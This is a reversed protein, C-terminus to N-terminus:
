DYQIRGDSSVQCKLGLVDKEILKDKDKGICTIMPENQELAGKYILGYYIDTEPYLEILGNDNHSNIVIPTRSIKDYCTHECWNRKDLTYNQNKLIPLTDLRTFNPYFGYMAPEDLERIYDASIFNDLKYNWLRCIYYKHLKEKEHTWGTLSHFKGTWASCKAQGCM